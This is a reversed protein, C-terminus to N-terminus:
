KAAAAAAQGAINGLEHLIQVVNSGSSTDNVGAAYTGPGWSGHVTYGSRNSFKAVEANADFLTRIRLTTSEKFGIPQNTGSVTVYTPYIPTRETVSIMSSCGATLIAAVTLLYLHKM